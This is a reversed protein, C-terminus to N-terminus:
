NKKNIYALYLPICVISCEPMIFSIQITHLYYTYYTCYICCSSLLTCSCTLLTCSYTHICYFTLINLWHLHIYHVSLHIYLLFIYMHYWHVTTWSSILSQYTCLDTLTCYHVLICTCATHDTINTYLSHNM